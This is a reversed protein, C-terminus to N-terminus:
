RPRRDTKVGLNVRVRTSKLGLNVRARTSIFQEIVGHVADWTAAGTTSRAPTWAKAALCSFCDAFIM